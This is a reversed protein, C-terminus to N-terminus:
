EAPAPGTSERVILQPEIIIERCGNAGNAQKQILAEFALKGIQGRPIDVTTLSPCTFEAIGINDYGTVSVDAPVSLGDNKLERLVGLAMNDNVCLIATPGFGSDLLQRAARRGGSPSDESVVTTHHVEGTYRAMTDLFAKLREHLPDLGAHHGIFAMRRHGISYLYEVTRRMGAEYHVKINTINRAPHGVDYFVIPLSSATLEEILSHEMESVIVALGAIRRGLMSRVSAVLRSSRYGTHEVVVEYGQRVAEGELSCFIDLFFPNEINSVIMGLTHSKVGALSRAHLNPHYRLEEAAKLVRRRTSDKVVGAKNLVRSATATSVGARKAVDELTM